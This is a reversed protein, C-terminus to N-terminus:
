AARRIEQNDSNAFFDHTSCALMLQHDPQFVKLQNEEVFWVLSFDEVIFKRGCYYGNKIVITERIPQNTHIGMEALYRVFRERINEASIPPM